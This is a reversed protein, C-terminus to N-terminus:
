NAVRLTIVTIEPRCNFRVQPFWVMGLGRNTYQWMDGVQYLGSPYKRGLEPLLPMYGGPAVCQGGHSHGSLQLDFRGSAASDDAFDPEHALLVAAGTAPLADLVRDLRQQNEWVDDVGAIHLQADGRQLTHVRNNLDILGAQRIVDRVGAAGTWYDHNGLVGGAGDRATLQSLPAILSDRYTETKGRTVFDGTIAVFDPQQANVLSVIGMLRERTMHRHDMHIDSIHLIRYGEFAPHLRSLQPSVYEVALMEPEIRNAYVLGAGGTSALALGAGALKLFGRRTMRGNSLKTM